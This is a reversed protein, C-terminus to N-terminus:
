THSMKVGFTSFSSPSGSETAWTTVGSVVSALKNM